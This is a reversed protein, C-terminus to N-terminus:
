LEKETKVRMRYVPLRRSIFTSMDTPNWTAYKPYEVLSPPIPM